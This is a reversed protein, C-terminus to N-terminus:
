HPTMSWTYYRKVISRPIVIQVGHRHHNRKLLHHEMFFYATPAKRKPTTTEKEDLETIIKQIFEDKQQEDHINRLLPTYFVEHDEDTWVSLVFSQRSLVDAAINLAGPIHLVEARFNQRIYRRWRLWLSPVEEWKTNSLLRVTNESDTLLTIRSYRLMDEFRKLTYMLAM